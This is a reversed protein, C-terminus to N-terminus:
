LEFDTEAGVAAKVEAEAEAEEVVNLWVEEAGEGLVEAGVSVYPFCNM